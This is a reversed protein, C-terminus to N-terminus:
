LGHGGDDVATAPASEVQALRLAAHIAMAV